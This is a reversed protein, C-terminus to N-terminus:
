VAGRELVAFDFDYSCGLVIYRGDSSFTAAAWDGSFNKYPRSYVVTSDRLVPLVQAEVGLVLREVQRVRRAKM